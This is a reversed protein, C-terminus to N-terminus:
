PCNLGLHAQALCRPTHLGASQPIRLSTQRRPTGLQMGRQDERRGYWARSQTLRHVSDDMVKLM